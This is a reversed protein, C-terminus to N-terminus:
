CAVLAERTVAPTQRSHQKENQFCRKHENATDRRSGRPIGDHSDTPIWDINDRQCVKKGGALASNQWKPIMQSGGATFSTM